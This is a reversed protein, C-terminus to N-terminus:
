RVWRAFEDEDDELADRIRTAEEEDLRQKREREVRVSEALKHVLASVNERRKASVPVVWIPGDQRPRVGSSLEANSISSVHAVVDSLKRRGEAASSPSSSPTRKQSADLASSPEDPGDDGPERRAAETHEEDEDAENARQGFLDAKNVVVGKVRATLEGESLGKVKEYETLETRLTEIAAVPDQDLDVVYVLTSCREIHRLFAHGLGHNLHSQALLGPNDTITFRMTEQTESRTSAGVMTPDTGGLRRSASSTGSFYQPTSPTDSISRDVSSDDDDGPNSRAAGRPGSFSGDSYLVCTGLHPNLTTFAFSAVRPTSSTLARLLTSKGANPLGVLGVEGTSKVELELRMIEGEGGKTAYKPSRDEHTLFSPNGLGPLGGSVLLIPADAPTPKSLDLHLLPEEDGHGAADGRDRGNRRRSRRRRVKKGPLEVERSLMKSLLHHETALFSPHGALETQPYMTFLAKRFRESARVKDDDFEFEDHEVWPEVEDHGLKEGFKDWQDKRKKWATWRKDRAEAEHLRVKNVEWAAELDKRLEDEREREDEHKPEVKVERVVTGVPVRVVVDEGRKGALWKGGGPMGSGGRVTRPLHSLSTVTPSAVLYVSGGQGGPGGSPPGRAKFKERHFAVGGAGGRGSVVTLNLTDIFNSGQQRRKWDAKAKAKHLAYDDVLTTTTTTSPSPPPTSEPRSSLTSTFRLSLHVVRSPTSAHTSPRLLM